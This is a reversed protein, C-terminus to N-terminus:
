EFTYSKLYLYTPCNPSWISCINGGLPAILYHVEKGNNPNTFDMIQEENQLGGGPRILLTEGSGALM